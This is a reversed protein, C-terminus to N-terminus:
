FPLDDDRPLVTYMQITKNDIEQVPALALFAVEGSNIKAILELELAPFEPGLRRKHPGLLGILTVPVESTVSTTCRELVPLLDSFTEVTTDLLGQARRSLIFVSSILHEIIELAVRFENEKPERIDHAADNGLFRIGHLRKKDSSSIHGAKFLLDIRKELSSGSIGLHNCVAEVTARLGMSAIIRSEGAYAAVSQRYVKKILEPVTYLYRLQKHNAIANPYRFTTTDPILNGDLDEDSNDFDEFIYRFGVTECGLCQVVQWTHKQELYSETAGHELAFRVSHSTTRACARCNAKINSIATM